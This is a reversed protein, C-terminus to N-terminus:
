CVEDIDFDAIRDGWRFSVITVGQGRLTRLTTKTVRPATRLWRADEPKYTQWLYVGEPTGFYAAVKAPITNAYTM